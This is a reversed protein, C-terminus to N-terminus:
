FQRGCRFAQYFYYHFHSYKLKLHFIFQEEYLGKSLISLALASGIVQQIDSAIVAIEIMVWLFYRM